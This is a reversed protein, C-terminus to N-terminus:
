SARAAERFAHEAAAITQALVGGTHADWLRLIGGSDCSAIRGSVSCLAVAEVPLAHGSLTRDVREACLDWVRVTGDTTGTVARRADDSFALARICGYGLQRIPLREAPAPDCATSVGGNEVEKALGGCGQTLAGLWMAALIRACARQVCRGTYADRYRISM